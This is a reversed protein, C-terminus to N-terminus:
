QARITFNENEINAFDPGRLGAYLGANLFLAKTAVDYHALEPPQSPHSLLSQPLAVSSTDFKFINVSAFEWSKDIGIFEGFLKFGVKLRVFADADMSGSVYFLTNGM